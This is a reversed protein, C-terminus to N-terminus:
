FARVARVWHYEKKAALEFGGMGPDLQQCWALPGGDSDAVQSSSWYDVDGFNGIRAEALNVYVENLEDQSPLYWDHYGGDTCAAAIAAAYSGAGNQAIIANTNALGTGIATGTAGGVATTQFAPLAWQIGEAQDEAAAILGHTEGAVYGPDGPQLIYSVMGGGYPTGITIGTASFTVPSGSLGSATATLTNAGPSAGLTWGGVTAVGAANTTASTGTAVGGGSAVAFIVSVGSVPNAHTDTVVVSPPAGVATGAAATQNNGANLAISHAAGANGSASFTVPSGSLGSATATLTNAGPSAGLTWGGVTAVGAANTTASTGTAVGGGSAVAFIVSVGSVPNAHTDTVVVSPPTGVAAGVTATQNNGANLAIQSALGATTAISGSVGTRSSGDTARVAYTTGATTATTFTVTAIGSADTTSTASGFSGGTGTESWAVTLGSAHVPTASADALQASITVATGAVPAYSSSTVLYQSALAPARYAYRDAHIKKSIGARTTVRVDVAGTGAPAIVTISTASKVHIHTAARTGFMVKKVASKGGSRFNKGAITVTNGGLTSGSAPSVHSVVPKHKVAAFASGPAALGIVLVAALALGVAGTGLALVRRGMGAELCTMEDVKPCNGGM